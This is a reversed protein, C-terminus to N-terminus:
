IYLREQRLAWAACLLNNNSAIGGADWIYGQLIKMIKTMKPFFIRYMFISLKKFTYSLKRLALYTRM